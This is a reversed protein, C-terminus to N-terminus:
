AGPGQCQAMHYIRGQNLRTALFECHPPQKPPTPASGGAAPPWLPDPSRLECGGSAPPKPAFGGAAPPLPTPASDGASSIKANKQLLLKM